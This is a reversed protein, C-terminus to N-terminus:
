AGVLEQRACYWAILSCTPVFGDILNTAEVIEWASWAGHKGWMACCLAMAFLEYAHGVGPAWGIFLDVADLAVSAVIKGKTAGSLASFGTPAPQWHSGGSAFGGTNTANDSATTKQM